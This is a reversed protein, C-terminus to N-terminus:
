YNWLWTGPFWTGPSNGSDDDTIWRDYSLCPTGDPYRWPLAVHRARRAQIASIRVARRLNVSRGNGGSGMRVCGACGHWGGSIASDQLDGDRTSHIPFILPEKSPSILTGM